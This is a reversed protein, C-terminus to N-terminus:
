RSFEKPFEDYTEVRALLRRAAALGTHEAPFLMCGVVTVRGELSFLSGLFSDTNM